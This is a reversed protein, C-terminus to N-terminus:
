PFSDFSGTAHSLVRRAIWFGSDWASGQLRHQPDRHYPLTKSVTSEGHRRSYRTEYPAPEESHQRARSFCWSSHRATRRAFGSDLITQAMTNNALVTDPFLQLNADLPFSSMSLHGNWGSYDQVRPKTRQPHRAVNHLRQSSPGMGGKDVLARNVFSLINKSGPKFDDFILTFASADLPACVLRHRLSM